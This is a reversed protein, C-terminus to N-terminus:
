VMKGLFRPTLTEISKRWRRGDFAFFNSYIMGKEPDLGGFILLMGEYECACHGCMKMLDEGSRFSGIEQWSWVELDLRWIEAVVTGNSLM